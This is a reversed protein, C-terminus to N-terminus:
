MIRAPDIGLTKCQEDMSEILVTNRLTKASLNISLTACRAAIAVAASGHKEHIWQAFWAFALALVRETLADILGESEALPIFVDPGIPGLDPHTWRALAEFGKLEETACAIKPQYVVSLQNGELAQKLDAASPTAPGSPPGEAP